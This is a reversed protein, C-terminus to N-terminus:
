MVEGGAVAISQGNISAAGEGCMWLVTDAVEQPTVLRNMPNGKALEARAEDEGRGTKAVINSVANRVIDTETYGPCVANVTIGKRAYELALSRTLGIVGHKAACYAAVYAYGVLGATSAINVIRGWKAVLMDPLVAQTCHFVGGLNVALMREFLETDTKHFPASDAQGANNVLITIPGFGARASESGRDISARDTVDMAVARCHESDGLRAAAADLAETDRGTITVQHGAAILAGAIAAGIGRGGGTVLAHRRVSDDSSIM